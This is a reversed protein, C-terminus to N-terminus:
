WKTEVCESNFELDSRTMIRRLIGGMESVPFALTRRSAEHLVRGMSVQM